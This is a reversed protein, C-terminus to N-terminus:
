AKTPRYNWQGGEIHMQFRQENAFGADFV